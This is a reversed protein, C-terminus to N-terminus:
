VLNEAITTDVIEVIGDAANFLNDGKDAKNFALYSSLLTLFGSNFIGGSNEAKNRRLASSTVTATGDAFNVIGGGEFTARNDDM